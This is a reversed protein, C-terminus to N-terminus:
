GKGKEGGGGNEEEEEQKEEEEEEEVQRGNADMKAMMARINM